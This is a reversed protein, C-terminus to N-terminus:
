MAGVHVNVRLFAAETAACVALAAEAENRLVNVGVPVSVAARVDSVARTMAAVTLPPVRGPHFPADLFNEVIVGDFGAAELAEADARARALVDELRGGWRPAGPLPLLHVM